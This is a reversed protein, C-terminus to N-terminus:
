IARVHITILGPAVVMLQFQVSIDPTHPGNSLKYIENQDFPPIGPTLVVHNLQYFCPATTQYPMPSVALIGTQDFGTSLTSPM